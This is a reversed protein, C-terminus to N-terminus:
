KLILCEVGKEDLQIEFIESLSSCFDKFKSFGYQKYSFGKIANNLALNFESFSVSKKKKIAINYADILIQTDIM